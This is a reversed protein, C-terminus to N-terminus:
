SMLSVSEWIEEFSPGSIETPQLGSWINMTSDAVTDCQPLHKTYKEFGWPYKILVGMRDCM